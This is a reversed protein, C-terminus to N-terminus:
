LSASVIAFFRFAAPPSRPHMCPLPACTCIILCRPSPSIPARPQAWRGVGMSQILGMERGKGRQFFLGEGKPLGGRGRGGNIIYSASLQTLRPRLRHPRSSPFRSTFGGAWVQNLYSVFCGLVISRSRSAAEGERGYRDLPPSRHFIVVWIRGNFAFCLHPFSPRVALPPPSDACCPFCPCCRCWRAPTVPLLLVPSPLALPLANRHAQTHARTHDARKASAEQTPPNLGVFCALLGSPTPLSLPWLLM